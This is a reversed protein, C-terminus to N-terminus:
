DTTGDPDRRVLHRRMQAPEPCELWRTFARPHRRELEDLLRRRLEALTQLAHWGTTQPLRRTSEDWMRCLQEDTVQRLVARQWRPPQAAFSVAVNWADRAELVHRRTAALVAAALGTGILGTVLLAVPATLPLVVLAMAAWCATLM